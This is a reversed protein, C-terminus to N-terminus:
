SQSGVSVRGAPIGTGPPRGRTEQRLKMPRLPLGLRLANAVVLLSSSSMAVAAMLPTAYGLVALPVAILNYAVALAFNQHILRLARFAIKRAAFIASLSDHLFVFGAAARGVDVASAPAMAVHGAALAPGDNLGDGVMLVLHGARQLAEVRAIKEAPTLEAHAETINLRRAVGQVAKDHDGSLIQVRLGATQLQDVTDLADPRLTDEFNFMKPEADDFRLFIRPQGEGDVVENAIGCWAANGLWVNRGHVMGSLGKGAREEVADADPLALNRDRAAALLAQSLPHRSHSALAAAAALSRDDIGSADVLRPRGLTLTGTKDFIVTDIRTLKELAAGDKVMIGDAFLRGSAVVQVIPVALGLACPCTIILVAIATQLSMHWDGGTWFLWGALTILAALHVVPAYIAAARDALRRYSPKGHEAAEMLRAVNALFSNDAGAVVEIEIPGTLNLTGAEIRDGVRVTQPDSEGTVLSRDLDSVGSLAIADVPIREGATVRLRMGPRVQDIPLYRPQGAGDVLTAGTAAMRALHTVARRAKERMVHDLTRGILLFFLLMTAADFYADAGGTATEHLSMGMALLVALSIPVDMNLRWRHLAGIASRFFPQGACAVAPVAIAASIWHFLDRTAAEAGSWVSVSFLMINAAAFGAIAVSRILVQLQRDPGTAAIEGDTLIRPPHGIDTLASLIAMPSGAGDHWTVNVRRTSLNVRASTVMSLDILAREVARICNGCHVGPVGLDVQWVGDGIGRSAARLEQEASDPMVPAVSPAASAGRCNM